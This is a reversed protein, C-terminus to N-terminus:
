HIEGLPVGAQLQEAKRRTGHEFMGWYAAKPIAAEEQIYRRFIIVKELWKRKVDLDRTLHAYISDM